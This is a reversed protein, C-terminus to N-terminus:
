GYQDDFDEEEEDLPPPAQKEKVLRKRDLPCTPQLKLWPQICELDFVHDKHCPLRVVLPHPDDLYPTACIPCSMDKTLSKKPVRDLDAIFEDSVGELQKPPQEAGELLSDRLGSLFDDGDGSQSLLINYADALNRFLASIDRPMPLSHVNNPQHDGSTDVQELQSFFTSLDPRRRPEEPKSAIPINHEVEYQSM